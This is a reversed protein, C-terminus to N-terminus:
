PGHAFPRSATLRSAASESARPFCTDFSPVGRSLWFERYLRDYEQDSIAPQAEVYYAQDHRLIEKALVAHRQQSTDPM